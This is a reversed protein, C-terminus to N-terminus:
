SRGHRSAPTNSALLRPDINGDCLVLGTRQGVFRERAMLVDALGASSMRPTQVRAPM